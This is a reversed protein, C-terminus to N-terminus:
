VQRGSLILALGSAVASVAATPALTGVPQLPRGLPAPRAGPEHSLAALRLAPPAAPHLCVRPELLRTGTHGPSIFCELCPRPSPNCGPQRPRVPAMPARLLLTGEGLQEKFAVGAAVDGPVFVHRPSSQHGLYLSMTAQSTYWTRHTESSLCVGPM